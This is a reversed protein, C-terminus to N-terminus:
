LLGKRRARNLLWRRVAAPQLVEGYIHCRKVKKLEVLRPGALPKGGFVLASFKKKRIQANLSDKSSHIKCIKGATRKV